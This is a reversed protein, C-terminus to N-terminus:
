SYPDAVRGLVPYVLINVLKLHDYFARLLPNHKESSASM